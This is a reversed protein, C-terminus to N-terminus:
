PEVPEARVGVEELRRALEPGSLALAPLAADVPFWQVSVRGGAKADSIAVAMDEGVAYQVVLRRGPKYRLYTIRAEAEGILQAAAGPDLLANMTSRGRPPRTSRDNGVTARASGARGPTATALAPERSRRWCAGTRASGRSTAAAPSCSPRRATRS